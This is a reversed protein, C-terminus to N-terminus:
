RADLEALTRALSSRLAPVHGALEVSWNRLMQAPRSKVTALRTMRDTLAVVDVAVRHREEAWGDLRSADWDELVQELNRALSIADQIGTNMGQGGAPSHVHASDGCLLIRGSRPTEAVRHHIHFRSGWSLMEIRAPQLAPGREDLLAQVFPATVHEPAADVTAVIRFHDDPLPAVVMLGAPSYFLTVEDRSLPWEMRVDALVFDQGYQGGVFDVDAEARVLSHMGDCGVVWDAKIRRSAGEQRLVAEAHSGTQAVHLLEVPRVVSGGLAEFRAELCAEIRDQPCMLTFPYPTHLEGFDVTLLSHDRDRVRFIPVKVGIELLQATIGLPELVEMTRAHVVCARSTNAGAAQRDIVLPDLHRRRLEAALALGTPGAGVILVKTELPLDEM